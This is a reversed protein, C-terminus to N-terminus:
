RFYPRLLKRVLEVPLGVVNDYTGKVVQAIPDRKSQIAYAGAKDLNKRSLRMLTGLDLKKMRVTSVAHDSQLKGNAAVAVGTYVYHTSGSLRYLM